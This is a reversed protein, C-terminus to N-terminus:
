LYWPINYYDYVSRGFQPNSWADDAEEYSPAAELQERSQDIVFGGLELDYNLSKWPLPHYRTGMGLFGGMSLVAYAVKGTFKDVMFNSVSGLHNGQRDYVYTGEVKDSAILRETEETPLRGMRGAEHARAHRDDGTFSM